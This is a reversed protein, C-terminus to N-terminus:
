AFERVCELYYRFSELSVDPPVTHDLTPIHGGAKLMPPVVREVEARISARDRALARKDIGGMIGLSPYERRIAVVDMGAQVEFPMLADVGADLFPPILSLCDGDTDVLIRQVGASRSPKILRM